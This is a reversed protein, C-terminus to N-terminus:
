AGKGNVLTEADRFDAKASHDGTLRGLAKECENRVLAYAGMEHKDALGSVAARHALALLSMMDVIRVSPAIYEILRKNM